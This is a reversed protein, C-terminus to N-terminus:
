KKFDLVSNIYDVIKTSSNEIKINPQKHYIWENFNKKNLKNTVFFGKKNIKKANFKQEFQNELPISWIKKNLYLSESITSFGANTIIGYCNKLDTIFSTRNIPMMVINNKKFKYSKVEPHYIKFHSINKPLEFEKLKDSVHELKWHPMYILVFDGEKTIKTLNNDIIPGFVNKNKNEFFDIPLNTKTPSFLNLFFKKFINKTQKKIFLQNSIGISPINNIKAGYSSVPEFDSIILDYQDFNISKLDEYFQKFDINLFTKLYDIKGSNKFKFGFGKFNYKINLINSIKNQQGSVLVDVDHNKQLLSIIQCSRTIHGNGTGQIGYLIKM